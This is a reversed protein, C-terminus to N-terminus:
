KEMKPKYSCYYYNSKFKWCASSFPNFQLFTGLENFIIRIVEVLHNEKMKSTKGKKTTEKRWVQWFCNFSIWHWWTFNTNKNKQTCIDIVQSRNRAQIWTRFNFRHVFPRLVDALWIESTFELTENMLHKQELKGTGDQGGKVGLM